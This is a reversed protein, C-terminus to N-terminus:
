EIRCYSPKARLFNSPDMVATSWFDTVFGGQNEILNRYKLHSKPYTYQLGQAMCGVTQLHHKLASKHASIDTGYAFGSVITPNFVALTEIIKECQSLGYTTIKRTGVVSIIPRKEWDITGKQFLVIPGDICHKLRFPYNADEFYLGQISNKEMFTLEKEATKLHTSQYINKISHTGIGEIKLLSAKSEKFVAEPSGCHRILKKATIDGINPVAQLALAYLLQPTNM